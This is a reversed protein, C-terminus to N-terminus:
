GTLIVIHSSVDASIAFKYRRQAWDLGVAGGLRVFPEGQCDGFVSGDEFEERSEGRGLPMLVAGVSKAGREVNGGVHCRTWRSPASPGRTRGWSADWTGSPTAMSPRKTIESFSRM